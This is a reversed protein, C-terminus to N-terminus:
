TEVRASDTRTRGDRASRQGLRLSYRTALLQYLWEREIEGASQAIDLRAADADVTLRNGDNSERLHLSQLARWDLEVSTKKPFV